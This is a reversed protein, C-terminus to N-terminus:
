LVILIIELEPFLIGLSIANSNMSVAQHGIMYMKQHGWTIPNIGPTSLAPQSLVIFVKTQAFIELIPTMRISFQESILNGFLVQMENLSCALTTLRYAIVPELL